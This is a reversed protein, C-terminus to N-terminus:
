SSVVPRSDKREAHGQIPILDLPPKVEHIFGGSQTIM